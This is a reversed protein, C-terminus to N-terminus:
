SLIRAPSEGEAGPALARPLVSSRAIRRIAEIRSRASPRGTMLVVDPHLSACLVVADAGSAAEGVVTLDSEASLLVRLALRQLSQDNVILVSVMVTKERTATPAM